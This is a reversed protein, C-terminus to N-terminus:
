ETSHRTGRSIQALVVIALLAALVFWALQRQWLARYDGGGALTGPFQLTAASRFSLNRWAMGGAPLWRAVRSSEPHFVSSGTGVLAAGASSRWFQGGACAAGSWKLFACALQCRGRCRINIPGTASVPQLLSSALQFTLTIM